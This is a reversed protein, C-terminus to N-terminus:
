LFTEISARINDRRELLRGLEVPYLGLETLLLPKVELRDLSPEPDDLTQALTRALAVQMVEMRSHAATAPSSLGCNRPSNCYWQPWGTSRVRWNM